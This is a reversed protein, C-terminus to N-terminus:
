LYVPDNTFRTIEHLEVSGPAVAAVMVRGSTAGLDVAAFASM